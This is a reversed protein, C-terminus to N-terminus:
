LGKMDSTGRGILFDGKVVGKFPPSLWNSEDGVPVVDTHGAFALHPKGHGWKAYLNDITPTGVEEFVLRECIFGLGSLALELVDLAGEDKPTVSPCRVLKQTLEIPDIKNEQKM